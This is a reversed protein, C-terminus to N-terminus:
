KKYSKELDSVLNTNCILMDFVGYGLIGHATLLGGMLAGAFGNTAVDQGTLWLGPIDTQPRLGGACTYRSPQHTLGYSASRRLYYM